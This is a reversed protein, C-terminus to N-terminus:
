LYVRKLEMGVGPFSGPDVMGDRPNLALAAWFGRWERGDMTCGAYASPDHLISKVCALGAVFAAHTLCETLWDAPWGALLCALL